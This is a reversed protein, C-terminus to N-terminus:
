QRKRAQENREREEREKEEDLLLQRFNDPVDDHGNLPNGAQLHDALM